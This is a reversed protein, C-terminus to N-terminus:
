PDVGHRRLVAAIAGVDEMAMADDDSLQISYKDELAQILALHGLSDWGKVAQPALSDKLEGEFKFVDAFVEELRKLRDEV